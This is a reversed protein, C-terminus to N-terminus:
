RNTTDFDIAEYLEAIAIEVKLSQLMMTQDLRNYEMFLWQNQAQKVYQEVHPRSPDILLYEEFTAITRYAEFKGARDYDQTSDSLVEAILTPNIVTDKRGPMLEAPRPMVMVDPYTYINRDPIWLRQDTVFIDYPQKRLAFWLLANLASALKNHAPTGGTMPIIEGDRYENRTDAAVELTLYDQASHNKPPATAITM